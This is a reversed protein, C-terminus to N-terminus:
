ILFIENAALTEPVNRLHCVRDDHLFDCDEPFGAWSSLEGAIWVGSHSFDCHEGSIIYSIVTYGGFTLM